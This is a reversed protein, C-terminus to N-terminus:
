AHHAKESLYSDDFEIRNKGRQKAQYMMHDARDILAQISEGPEHIALGASFTPVPKAKNEARYQSAAARQQVKNFAQM